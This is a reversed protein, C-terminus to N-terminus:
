GTWLSFILRAVLLYLTMIGAYFFIKLMWYRNQALYWGSALGAIILVLLVAKENSWGEQVNLNPIALLVALTGAIIDATKLQSKIPNSNQPATM